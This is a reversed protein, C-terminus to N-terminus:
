TIPELEPAGADERAIVAPWPLAEASLEMTYQVREGSPPLPTFGFTPYFEKVMGNKKTPLYEGLLRQCGRRRAHEALLALMANEVRRGLVRCSMLFSDIRGTEGEAALIAVGILGQDGFRDRLRLWLVAHRADAAMAAVEAQSHRRTTLNFQNTKGILQAVRGLTATDVEGVAAVMNLDGLFEEVSTARQELVQRKQNDRYMQARGRDEESLSPQDFFGAELVAQAYLLPDTPVEIVGVQPANARVEAREVPNDDFFVLADAGINLEAAIELLNGSKPLWNARLAAIDERRLLMEPHERFVQEVVETENKSAVALLVGRDLLSRLFRQFAKYASGPYDDGLQIGSLGDDGVVGGWLTNDLDLVLCKAPRRTAGAVTRLLHAALHPQMAAAVPVRALAWLRRDTWNATGHTAVLGAYDWVYVDPLGGLRERLLVNARALAHTLSDALNADFIGCPVLSPTAFNAVLVPARSHRRFLEVCGVLREVLAELPHTLNIARAFEDPLVDEPRLLAVVVDPRSQLLPSAPEGLEQEFQGFQGFYTQVLTGRRAGEVLLYPEVFQLTCSALVGLRLPSLEPFNGERLERASRLYDAPKETVLLQDLRGASASKGM